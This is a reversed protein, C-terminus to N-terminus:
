YHNAQKNCIEWKPYKPIDLIYNEREQSTTKTLEAVLTGAM